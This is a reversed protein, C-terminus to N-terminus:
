KITVDQDVTNEQNHLQSKLQAIEIGLKKAADFADDFQIKLDDREKTIAEINSKQEKFVEVAKALRANLKDNEQKFLEITEM